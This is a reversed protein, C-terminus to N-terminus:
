EGGVSWEDSVIELLHRYISRFEQKSTKRLSKLSQRAHRAVWVMAGLDADAAKRAAQMYSFALCWWPM